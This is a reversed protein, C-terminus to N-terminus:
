APHEGGRVDAGVNGHLAAFAARRQEIHATFDDAHSMALTSEPLARKASGISAASFTRVRNDASGRLADRSSRCESRDSRRDPRHNSRSTISASSSSAGALPEANSIPSTSSRTPSRLMVVGSSTSSAEKKEVASSSTAALPVPRGPPVRSERNCRPRDDPRKAGARGSGLFRQERHKARRLERRCGRGSRDNVARNMGQPLRVFSKGEDLIPVGLARAEDLKSGANGPRRRRYDTKSSVSSSVNGGLARIKEAAKAARCRRWREPSCLHKARGVASRGARCCFCRGAAFDRAVADDGCFTRGSGPLSIISCRAPWWRASSRSSGRRATARKRRESRSDRRRGARRVAAIEELLEAHRAARSQGQWDTPCGGEGPGASQRRSSRGALARSGRGKCAAAFGRRDELSRTFGRWITRPKRASKRSRSRTCGAPSRCRAHASSPRSCRPANKEGFVRPEEDTGLNLPALPKSSSTSFSRAARRGPRARGTQGRRHRRARRYRARRTQRFIGPPADKAGPLDLKRLGVRRVGPDRRIAGGCAPCKGHSTRRFDFPARTRRGNRLLRGARGGPHSRRSKRHRRHRRHPHRQPPNRGRQAADRPQDHQRSSLRTRAGGGAHARRHPRGARHDRAAADGGARGCIELSQAWKPARSHYGVRERQSAINLKIVAGDTEFGFSDRMADLEDIAAMCSRESARCLKTWRRAFVSRRAAVRATAAQTPPCKRM